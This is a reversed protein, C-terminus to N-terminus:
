GRPTGARIAQVHADARVIYPVTDFYPNASHLEQRLEPLAEGVFHYAVLLARIGAFADSSIRKAEDHYGRDAADFASAVDKLWAILAIFPRDHPDPDAM